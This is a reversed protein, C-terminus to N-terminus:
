VVHLIQTTQTVSIAVHIKILKSSNPFVDIM